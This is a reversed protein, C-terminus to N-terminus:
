GYRRQCADCWFARRGAAGLSKRYTLRTGDRPCTTKKHVQWHRRLVGAKKWAYFDFSYDRAQRIVAGLVRPPLAGIPSEPHVRVRHLVENKIINGVGAFVDQDLLADAVLADPMAKLRRRALRPDWADGMVDTRWDYAEDLPGEVWKLSCAYVSLEGNVFELRMRPPADKREDIRYSGFLMFHVRMAFDGFDLLFHKGWSRVARVTRGQMRSLDLSSNGAVARVRRRAFKAAQERLIVISPGEPM